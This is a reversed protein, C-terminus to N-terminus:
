RNAGVSHLMACRVVFLLACHWVVFIAVGTASHTCTSFFLFRVHSRPVLCSPRVKDADKLRTALIAADPHQALTAVLHDEVCLRRCLAAVYLSAMAHMEHAMAAQM